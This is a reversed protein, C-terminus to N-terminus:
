SAEDIGGSSTVDFEFSRDGNELTARITDEDRREFSLVIQQRKPTELVYRGDQPIPDIWRMEVDEIDLHWEGREGTWAREGEVVFGEDIGGRLPRQTRDGTGHGERGTVLSRWDLDHVVHRAPDDEIWTVEATGSVEVVGNSLQDWAHLVVVDGVENREVTIRHTGSYAQGRHLCTGNAGYEVTLTAGSVDIAACPLQSEYFAALEMAANEVAGGITFDTAIEIAGGTLRMAQDAASSEELALRAEAATVPEDSASQLDKRPCGSAFLLASAVVAFRPAARLM